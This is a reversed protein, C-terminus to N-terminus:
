ATTVAALTIRDLYATVSDATIFARRGINVKTLQGDNILDYVTSRGLDGLKECTRPISLLGSIESM